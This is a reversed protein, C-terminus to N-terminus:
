CKTGEFIQRLHKWLMNQVKLQPEFNETSASFKGKGETSKQKIMRGGLPMSQICASLSSCFSGAFSDSQNIKCFMRDNNSFDESTLDNSQYNQKNVTYM